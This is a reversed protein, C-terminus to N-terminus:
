RHRRIWLGVALIVTLVTMGINAFAREIARLVDNLQTKGDEWHEATRGVDDFGVLPARNLHVLFALLLFLGACVLAWTLTVTRPRDLVRALIGPSHTASRVRRSTHVGTSLGVVRPYGQDRSRDSPAALPGRGRGPRGPSARGTRRCRRAPAP